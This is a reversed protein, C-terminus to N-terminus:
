AAGVLNRVSAIKVLRRGGIRISEVKGASLYNYLTARSVGIAAAAASVSCTVPEM